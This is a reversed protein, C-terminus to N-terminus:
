SPPRGPSLPPDARGSPRHVLLERRAAPSCARRGGGGAVLAVNDANQGPVSFNEIALPAAERWALTGDLYSLTVQGQWDVALLYEGSATLFTPNAPNVTQVDWAQTTWRRTLVQYPAASTGVQGAAFFRRGGVFAVTGTSFPM